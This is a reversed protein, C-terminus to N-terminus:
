RPQGFTVHLVEPLGSLVDGTAQSCVWRRGDGFLRREWFAMQKDYNRAHKDWYHRLQQARKDSVQSPM